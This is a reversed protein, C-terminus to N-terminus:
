RKKRFCYYVKLLLYLYLNKPNISKLNYCKVSELYSEATQLSRKDNIINLIEVLSLLLKCTISGARVSVADYHFLAQKLYRISDDHKNELIMLLVGYYRLATLYQFFDIINASSSEGTNSNM